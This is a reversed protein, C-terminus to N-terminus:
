SVHTGLPWNFCTVSKKQIVNANWLIILSYIIVHIKRFFIRELDRQRQKIQYFSTSSIWIWIRQNILSLDFSVFFVYWSLLSHRTECECQYRDCFILEIQGKKAKKRNCFFPLRRVFPLSIPNSYFTSVSNVLINSVSKKLFYCRCM